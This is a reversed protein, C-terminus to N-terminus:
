HQGSALQGCAACIDGGKSRRIFATIKDGVLIKQFELIKKESSPKFGGQEDHNLPILNIKCRIGRLMKVIRRADLHTDNVGKIMIYEFTIRRGPGLPFKKCAGILAALPYKRNVPMIESRSSETTANLSVALNIEPARQPLLPFKPLIGATSLTIKRRSIGTFIVIKWLAEVVEDFNMLPEGMGMFVINTIKRPSFARGNNGSLPPRATSVEQGALIRNVAIVQDLIEHSKLNRTLGLKGTRCFRCGLACGVQSSICLTLRSKDQILVSEILRGDDLSFLFKETGDSSILRKALKICSIFALEELAKRLEKSFETIEDISSAHKKYIWHIIQAARYRPLGHSGAFDFIEGKSLSKLDTKSMIM